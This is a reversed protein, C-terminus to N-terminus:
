TGAPSMPASGRISLCSSRIVNFVLPNETTIEIVDLGGEILANATQLVIEPNSNRIIPFVKNSALKEILNVNM